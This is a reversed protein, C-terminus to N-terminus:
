KTKPVFQSLYEDTIEGGAVWHAVLRSTRAMAQWQDSKEDAPTSLTTQVLWDPSQGWERSVAMGIHNGCRLQAEVATSTTYAAQVGLEGLELSNGRDVTRPSIGVKEGVSIEAPRDGMAQVTKMFEDTSRCQPTVETVPEPEKATAKAIVNQWQLRGLEPTNDAATTSAFRISAVDGAGTVTYTCQPMGAPSMGATGTISIDGPNITAGFRHTVKQYNQLIAEIGDTLTASCPDAKLTAMFADESTVDATTTGATQGFNSTVVTVPSAPVPPVPAATATSTSSGGDPEDSGSGCATALVAM